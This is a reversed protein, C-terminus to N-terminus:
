KGFMKSVDRIYIFKLSRLKNVNANDLTIFTENKLNEPVGLYCKINKYVDRGRFKKRPLMGRITRRVIMDARRPFFPGKFVNGIRIKNKYEALIDKRGGTIVAKECNVIEIKEGLLAKKAAYSALRGLITDQANIIM